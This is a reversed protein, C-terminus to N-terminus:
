PGQRMKSWDMTDFGGGAGGGSGGSGGMFGGFAGLANGATAMGSGLASVGPYYQGTNQGYWPNLMPNGLMTLTANLPASELTQGRGFTREGLATTHGIQDFISGYNRGRVGMEAANAQQMAGMELGTRARRVEDKLRSGTRASELANGSLQNGVLTSNGLGRASLAALSSRDAARRQREMDEDILRESGDGYSRATNVLGRGFMQASALDANGRRNLADFGGQQRDFISQNLDGYRSSLGKIQDFISGGIRDEFRQHAARAGPGSTDGTSGFSLDSWADYGFFPNAIRAAGEGTRRHYWDRAKRGDRGEAQAGLYSSGAALALGAGAVIAPM